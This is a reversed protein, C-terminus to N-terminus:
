WLKSINWSSWHFQRLCHYVITSDSDLASYRTENQEIPTIEGRNDKTTDFHLLLVLKSIQNDHIRQILEAIVERKTIGKAGLEFRGNIKRRHDLKELHEILSNAPIFPSELVHSPDYPFIGVSRASARCNAIDAAVSWTSMIAALAVFRVRGAASTISGDLSM